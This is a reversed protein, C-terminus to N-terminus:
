AKKWRKLSPINRTLIWGIIRPIGMEKMKDMCFVQMEKATCNDGRFAGNQYCYSCYDESKSEDQNTGGQQPDKSMPM